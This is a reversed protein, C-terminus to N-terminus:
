IPFNFCTWKNIQIDILGNCTLTDQIKLHFNNGVPCRQMRFIYQQSDLTSYTKLFCKRFTCVIKFFYSIYLIYGNKALSKWVTAFKVKLLIQKSIRIGSSTIGWNTVWRNCFKKIFILGQNATPMPLILFLGPSRPM